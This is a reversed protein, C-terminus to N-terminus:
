EFGHWRSEPEFEIDKHDIVAGPGYEIALWVAGVYASAIDGHQGDIIPSKITITAGSSLKYSVQRLQRTLDTENRAIRANHERMADRARTYVDVKGTKGGPLEIVEFGSLKEKATEIYHQDAAVVKVGHARLREAFADFVESPKLPKGPLPVLKLVEATQIKNDETWRVIVLGSANRKFGTDICAYSARQRKERDGYNPMEIDVLSAEVHDTDDDDTIFWPNEGADTPISGYERLRKLKDPELKKTDDETITPNTEWTAGVSVIQDHEESDGNNVMVAHHDSTSFASSSAFIKAAPMTATTARLSTLIEKSPNAGDNPSRWKSMEDALIAIATFGSTGAISCTKVRFQIPRDAIRWGHSTPDSYPAFGIGVAELIARITTLRGKAEGNDVSVISVVGTDGPQIKWDAFLALVVIIRCLSSSKGGRRGVRLVWTKREARLFCELRERWWQSTPAFGKSVLLADLEDYASLFADVDNPDSLGDWWNRPAEVEPEVFRRSTQVPLFRDLRRETRAIRDVFELM